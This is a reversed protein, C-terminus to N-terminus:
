IVWWFMLRWFPASMAIWIWFSVAPPLRKETEVRIPEIARPRLPIVKASM